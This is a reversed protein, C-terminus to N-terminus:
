PGPELLDAPVLDAAVLQCEGPCVSISGRRRAFLLQDALDAGQHGAIGDM